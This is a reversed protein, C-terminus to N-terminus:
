EALDRSICIPSQERHDTALSPTKFPACKREAVLRRVYSFVLALCMALVLKTLTLRVRTDAEMTRVQLLGQEEAEMDGMLHRIEDMGTKGRDEVVVGRATEFGKEKRLAITVNLEDFRAAILRELRDTRAEQSANDATLERLRKFRQHIGAVAVADEYPQLYRTEGTILYGRQGTEADKLLSLTEEIQTLVEHTHVTLRNTAALTSINWFSACANAVVVGMLLLFGASRFPRLALKWTIPERTGNL